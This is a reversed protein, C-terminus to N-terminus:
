NVECEVLLYKQEGTHHNLEEFSHLLGFREQNYDPNLSNLFSVKKRVGLLEDEGPSLFDLLFQPYYRKAELINLVSFTKNLPPCISLLHFCYIPWQTPM